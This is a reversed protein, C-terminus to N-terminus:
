DTKSVKSLGVVVIAPSVKVFGLLVLLKFLYNLGQLSAATGLQLEAVGTVAVKASDLENFLGNVGESGMVVLAWMSWM